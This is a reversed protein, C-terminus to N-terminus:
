HFKAHLHLQEALEGISISDGGQLNFSFKEGDVEYEFDVTYVVAYVSFSEAEFSAETMQNKKTTIDTKAQDLVEVEVQNTKANEAFHLIHVHDPDEVEVGKKYTITVNITDEPEVEDKGNVLSIDYFHAFSLTSTQRDVDKQLVKLAKQYYKVAQEYDGLFCNVNGLNYPVVYSEGFVTHLFLKEPSESYRGNEYDRLFGNNVVNRAILFVGDIAIMLCLVWLVILIRRFIKKNKELIPDM